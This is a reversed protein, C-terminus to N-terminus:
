PLLFRGILIGTALAVTLGVGGLLWWKLYSAEVFMEEGRALKEKLKTGPAIPLSKSRFTQMPAIRLSDHKKDDM